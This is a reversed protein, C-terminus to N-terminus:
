RLVESLPVFWAAVAGAAIAVGYPVSVAGTGSPLPRQGKRGLTVLYLLLDKSRYLVPLVVRRRAIEEVVLLLGLAAGLLLAWVLERPGLFAGAAAVLKVDGGGIAGLALLPLTLLVGLLIGATGLLVAEPGLMLRIALGALLATVTLRNPLRGETADSWIAACMFAVFVFSVFMSSAPISM